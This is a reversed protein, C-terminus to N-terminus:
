LPSHSDCGKPISRTHARLETEDIGRGAVPGPRLVSPRGRAPAPAGGAPVHVPTEVGRGTLGAAGPDGGGPVGENASGVLIEALGASGPGTGEPPGAGLRGSRGRAV